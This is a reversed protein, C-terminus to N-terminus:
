ETTYTIRLTVQSATMELIEITFPLSSKDGQLWSYNAHISKNFHDGVQFLDSNQATSYDEIENGMDAEILQLLKIATDTNNYRYISPYYSNEDFTEALQANVHHIMVGPITFMELQDAENLGLPRYYSILLYEGFISQNWNNPLLLVENSLDFADITITVSQTLVIPNIWGLSLKSFANHDGLTNDMMDFGGLGGFNLEGEPDYDYYDELGLLHGTEHIITRANLEESGEFFFDVGAWMFYYPEVRDFQDGEYAYIDQYAWWLDSGSEYSVPATYIIYIADIFGDQNSDYNAYDIQHNYHLLLEYILDSDPYTVEDDSYLYDGYEDVAYLKEYENEYYSAPNEARYFGYVDAQIDLMQYSSKLYYSRLSEFDMQSSDGNFAREIFPISIPSQSAPFDSFDVVFVLVQVNGSAPIGVVDMQDQITPLGTTPQPRTTNPTTTDSTTTSITTTTTAPSTTATSSTVATSTSTTLSSESSATTTTSLDSTTSTTVTSTQCAILTLSFFVLLLFQLTRKM